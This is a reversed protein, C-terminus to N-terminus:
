RTTALRDIENEEYRRRNLDDRQMKFVSYLECNSHCGVARRTCNKCPAGSFPKRWPHSDIKTM